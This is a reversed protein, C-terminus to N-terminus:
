ILSDEKSTSKEPLYLLISAQILRLIAFLFGIPLSLYVIWMPVQLTASKQKFTQMQEVLDWGGILLFVSLAILILFISQQLIIQAKKPLRDSIIDISIHKKEIFSIGISLFILWIFLYRSAEETWSLADGMIYRTFVQVFILIVMLAMSITVLVKEFGNLM